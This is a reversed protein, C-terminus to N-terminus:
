KLQKGFKNQLSQVKESATKSFHRREFLSLVGPFVEFADLLDTAEVGDAHTAENGVLKLAKLWTAEEKHVQEMLDISQHLNKGKFGLEECVKEM